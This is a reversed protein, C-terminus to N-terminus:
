AISIAQATLRARSYRRSQSPFLSLREMSGCWRSMMCRLGSDGGRSALVKLRDSALDRKWSREQWGAETFHAPRMLDIPAQDAPARRVSLQYSYDTGSEGLFGNVRVFYRGKHSFRYTIAANVPFGPYSVEEDNFALETLRDPQFWSGTAEFLTLAPDLAGGATLADFRLSEGQQVDFSYYDVEGTSAIKGNIVVPFARIEQASKPLEHPGSDELVAAETHVRFQLSNSVGRPTMVRLYHVGPAAGPAVKVAM